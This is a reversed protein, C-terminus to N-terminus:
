FPAPIEVELTAAISSFHSLNHRKSSSLLSSNWCHFSILSIFVGTKKILGAMKMKGKSEQETKLIMSCVAENEISQTELMRIVFHPVHSKTTKFMCILYIHYHVIKRPTKIKLCM